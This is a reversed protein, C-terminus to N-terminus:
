CSSRVLVVRTGFADVGDSVVCDSYSSLVGARSGGIVVQALVVEYPSSGTGAPCVDVRASSGLPISFGPSSSCAALFLPDPLVPESGLPVDTCSGGSSCIRLSTGPQAQAGAPAILAAASALAVFMGAFRRM